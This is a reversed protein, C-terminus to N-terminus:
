KKPGTVSPVRVALVEGRVCEQGEFYLTCSLLAKKEHMEKIRARLEVPKDVPTPKIFDVKLSGIAFWYPPNERVERPKDKYYAAIATLVCHCDIVGSIIGGNLVTPWGASHFEEAKWTCISEDGDWYSKIYLGYPNENGCVWCHNGKCFIEDQFATRDMLAERKITFTKRQFFSHQLTKL